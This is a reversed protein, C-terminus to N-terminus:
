KFLHSIAVIFLLIIGMITAYKGLKEQSYKGIILGLFTFIFSCTSFIWSAILANDTLAKLGIGTTFSDFSVSLAFLLVGILKLDISESQENNLDKIMMVALFILIFSVLYNPNILIVKLIQKGLFLGILPMIFHMIGVIIAIQFIKASNIKLTGISLSLSFTDMSLAIGIMFLSLLEVM